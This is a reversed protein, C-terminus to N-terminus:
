GVPKVKLKIFTDLPHHNLTQRILENLKNVPYNPYRITGLSSCCVKYVTRLRAANTGKAYTRAGDIAVM